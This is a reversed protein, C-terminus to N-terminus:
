KTAAKECPEASFILLQPYIAASTRNAIEVALLGPELVLRPSSFLHPYMMNRYDQTFAPNGSFALAAVFDEFFPVGNCSDTIQVLYTIAVKTYPVLATPNFQNALLGWVYSNPTVRMQYEVTEYAPVPSNYEDPMITLKPRYTNARRLIDMQALATPYFWNPRWRIAPNYTFADIISPMSPMSPLASPQQPQTSM